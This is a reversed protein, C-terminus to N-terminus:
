AALKKSVYKWLKGVELVVSAPRDGIAILADGDPLGIITKRIKENFSPTIPLSSKSASDCIAVHLVDLSSFELQGRKKKGIGGIESKRSEEIFNRLTRNPLEFVKQVERFNYM